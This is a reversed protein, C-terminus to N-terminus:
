KEIKKATIRCSTATRKFLRRTLQRDQEVEFEYLLYDSVTQGDEVWERFECGGEYVGDGHFGGRELLNVNVM